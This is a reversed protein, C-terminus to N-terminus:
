RILRVELALNKFSEEVGVLVRFTELTAHLFLLHQVLWFLDCFGFQNMDLGLGVVIGGWLHFMSFPLTFIAYIINQGATRIRQKNQSVEM